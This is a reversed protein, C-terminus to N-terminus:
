ISFNFLNHEVKQKFYLEAMIDALTSEEPMEQILKIVENKVTSM